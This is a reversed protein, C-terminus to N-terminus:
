NLQRLKWPRTGSNGIYGPAGPAPGPGAPM